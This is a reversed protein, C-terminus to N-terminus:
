LGEGTTFTLEFRKCAICDPGLCEKARKKDRWIEQGGDDFFTVWVERTV